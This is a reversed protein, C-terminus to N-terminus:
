YIESEFTPFACILGYEKCKKRCEDETYRGSFHAAIVKKINMREKIVSVEGITLHKREEGVRRDSNSLFTTDAIYIKANKLEPIRCVDEVYDTDLGYALLCISYNEYVNYTKRALTIEQQSKGVYQPSLRKREEMVLFHYSMGEGHRVERFLIKKNNELTIEGNGELFYFKLDFPLDGLREKIYQVLLVNPRTRALYVSLPKHKDGASKARTSILTCLGNSHDNHSHSLMIREIAFIRDRKNVTFGEGCDFLTRISHCYCYSSLGGVSFLEITESM